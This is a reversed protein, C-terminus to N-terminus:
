EVEESGTMPNQQWDRQKVKDWTSQVAVEGVFVPSRNEAREEFMGGLLALYMRADKIRGEIPERQSRHGNIHALIGELHKRLYIWLVQERTINLEKALREFNAFANGESHAYEKQGQERVEREIKQLYILYKEMEVRTMVM